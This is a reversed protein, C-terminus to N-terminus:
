KIHKIRDRMNKGSLRELIFLCLDDLEKNGEKSEHYLYFRNIKVSKEEFYAIIERKMEEIDKQLIEDRPDSKTRICITFDRESHEYFRFKYFIDLQENIPRDATFFIMIRPCIRFITYTVMRIVPPAEGELAAFITYVKRSELDRFVIRNPPIGIYAVDGKSPKLIHNDHFETKLIEFELEPHGKLFEVFYHLISTYGTNEPGM